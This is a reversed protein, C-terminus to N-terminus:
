AIPIEAKGEPQGPFGLRGRPNRPFAPRQARTQPAPIIFRKLKLNGHFGLGRTTTTQGQLLGHPANASIVAGQRLVRRREDVNRTSHEKTLCFGKGNRCLVAQLRGHPNEGSARRPRRLQLNFDEYASGCHASFVYNCLGPFRFVDGDFTKYHFDGWTSCM